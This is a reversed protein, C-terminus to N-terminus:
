SALYKDENNCASKRWNREWAWAFGSRPSAHNAAPSLPMAGTYQGLSSGRFFAHPPETVTCQRLMLLGLQNYFIRRCRGDGQPSCKTRVLEKQLIVGILSVGLAPKVDSMSHEHPSRISPRSTSASTSGVPIPPMRWVRHNGFLMGM